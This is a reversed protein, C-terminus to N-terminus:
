GSPAHDPGLRDILAMAGAPARVKGEHIIFCFVDRPTREPTASPDVRDLDPPQGGEAWAQLRAAWADLQDPPYATEVTDSGTQLRAYVFDGTLDPIAPYSAHDAYVIPTKYRRCLSVFAPDRFSDHRVEVAHRLPVGDVVPPLLELFAGFDDPDFRKTPAFQWFIPGLKPGLETIGQSVFRSVSEGAGALEKRNTAFRSGKLTFVFRDPAQAAWSRFVEPKQLRYYTANVEIATLKRSCYELERKQPLGDPYFVGRWPEFIWGGIGVRIRGAM